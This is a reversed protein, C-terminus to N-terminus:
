EFEVLLLNRVHVRTDGGHQEGLRILELRAPARFAGVGDLSGPGRRASIKPGRSSRVEEDVTRQRGACGVLVDESGEASRPLAPRDGAAEVFVAPARPYSEGAIARGAVVGDVAPQEPRVREVAGPAFEVLELAGLVAADLDIAQEVVARAHAGPDVREGSGFCM